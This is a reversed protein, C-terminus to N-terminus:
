LTRSVTSTNGNPRCTRSMSPREQRSLGDQLPMPSPRLPGARRAQEFAPPANHMVALHLAGDSYLYMSGFQAACIRVASELMADFVPEVEGPSRSIVKLVESTATQQELSESLDDTRQRLESLLRTNEIAIVAQAAFNEILAIQKESFAKTERRAVSVVGVVREERLM